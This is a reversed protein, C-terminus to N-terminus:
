PSCFALDLFLSLSLSLRAFIGYHAPAFDSYGSALLGAIAVQKPDLRALKAAFHTELQRGFRSTLNTLKASLSFRGPHRRRRPARRQDM